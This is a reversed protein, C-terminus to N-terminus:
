QAATRRYPIREGTQDALDQKLKRFHKRWTRIARELHANTKSVRVQCKILPTRSYRQMAVKRKLAMIVGEQDSKLTVQEGFFGADDFKDKM